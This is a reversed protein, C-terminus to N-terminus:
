NRLIFIIRTPINSQIERRCGVELDETTGEDDKCPEQPYSKTLEEMQQDMAVEHLHHPQSFAQFPVLPQAHYQMVVDGQM